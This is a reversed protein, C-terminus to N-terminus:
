PIVTVETAKDEGRNNKGISFEVKQGKKLTKFGGNPSVIDSFHVFLDTKASNEWQLFGYGLKADFFIVSGTFKKDESM